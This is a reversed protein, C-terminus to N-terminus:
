RSRRGELTAAGRERGSRRPRPAWARGPLPDQRFGIPIVELELQIETQEAVTERVREILTRVQAATAGGTNVIYNAHMESVAAPGERVGKLGCADILRGAADGPPNKFVSGVSQVGVPQTAMRHELLEQVRQRVSGPVEAPRFRLHVRGVISGPPLASSRYALQLAEAAVQVVHCEPPPTVVEVATLSDRINGGRGGANMVAAGGVSGPVGTLGEFGTLDRAVTWKLVRPTAVGAGVTLELGDATEDWEQLADTAIVVGEFGEDSVLVNSGGGLPLYTVELEGLVGVLRELSELDPPRVLARCPGGVKMSTYSALREELRIDGVRAKQLAGALARIATM